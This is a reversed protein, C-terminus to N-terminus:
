PSQSPTAPYAVALHGISRAIDALAKERDYLAAAQSMQAQSRALEAELYRTITAAGSEYQRRVLVLTEDANAVRSRAVELRANAEDLALYASKVELEVALTAKRDQQLMAEFIAQAEKEQARTGFGRFLEWNFLIGATWNDDDWNYDMDEDDYYLKGFADISPIYGTRAQDVAMRSQRVKEHVSRVEPRNALAYALGADFHEPVDLSTTANKDPELPTDTGSGMITALAARALERRNRSRAEEEQAEARRVRLSLLDSKLAAGEDYRVQMVRLQDEVTAASQRAIALFADATLYNYYSQIVSAAVANIVAESDLRSIDRGTATMERNLLDRGGSFLNWRANLGSEFNHWTGPNNLDGALSFQRQDLKKFLYASPANGGLYETYFALSPYFAAETKQLLAESQQIRAVAMQRDPNNAVAIRIADELALPGEPIRQLPPTATASRRLVEARHAEQIADYRYRQQTACGSALALLMVFGMLIPVPRIMQNATQIM